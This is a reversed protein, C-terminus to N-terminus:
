RTADKVKLPKRKKKQAMLTRSNAVDVAAQRIAVMKERRDRQEQLHIAREIATMTERLDTTADKSGRIGSCLLKKIAHQRAACTVEFAEIVDYVDVAITAYSGENAPKRGGNEADPVMPSSRIGTIERQYKNM